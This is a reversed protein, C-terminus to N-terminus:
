VKVLLRLAPPLVARLQTREWEDFVRLVLLAGIYVIAGLCLGLAV